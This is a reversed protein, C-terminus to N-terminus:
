ENKNPNITKVLELNNIHTIYKNDDKTIVVLEKYINQNISFSISIPVQEDLLIYVGDSKIKKFNFDCIDCGKKISVRDYTDIDDPLKDKTIFLGNNFISSTYIIDILEPSLVIFVSSGIEELLKMAFELKRLKSEM